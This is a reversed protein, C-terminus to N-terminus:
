EDVQPTKFLPLWEDDGNLRWHGNLDFEIQRPSVGDLGRGGRCQNPEFYCPPTKGDDGNSGNTGPDGDKPKPIASVEESVQHRIEANIREYDIQPIDIVSSGQTEKLENIRRNTQEISQATRDFALAILLALATILVAVFVGAVIIAIVISRSQRDDENM